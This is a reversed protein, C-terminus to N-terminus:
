ICNVKIELFLPKAPKGTIYGDRGPPLNIRPPSEAPTSLRPRKAPVPAPLSPVPMPFALASCDEDEDEIAENKVSSVPLEEKIPVCESPVTETTVTDKHDFDTPKSPDCASQEMDYEFSGGLCPEDDSDSDSDSDEENMEDPGSEQFQGFSGPPVLM